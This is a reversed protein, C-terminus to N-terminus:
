REKKRNWTGPIRMVRSLDGVNDGTWGRKNAKAIFTQNWAHTLSQAQKREADTDFIWLEKFAWWAQLGHGSHVVLTPQPGMSEILSLADEQTPPLNFKKHATGYDVDLWLGPIACIDDSKCRVREGYNHGALGCGVYVDETKAWEQIQAIVEETACQVWHSTKSPFRWLLLWYGMLDPFVTEFFQRIELTPDSMESLVSM